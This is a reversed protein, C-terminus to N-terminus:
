DRSYLRVRDDNRFGLSQKSTFDLKLIQYSTKQPPQKNPLNNRRPTMPMLRNLQIRKRPLLSNIKKRFSARLDSSGLIHDDHASSGNSYTGIM